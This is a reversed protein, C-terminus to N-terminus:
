NKKFSAFSRLYRSDFDFLAKIVYVSIFVIVLLLLHNLFFKTTQKNLITTFDNKFILLLSILFILIWSVLYSIAIGKLGLFYSGIGSFIFYFLTASIGLIVVYNNTNSAFFFLFVCPCSSFDAM